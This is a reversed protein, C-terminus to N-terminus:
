KLREYYEVGTAGSSYVLTQKYANKGTFELQLTVPKGVLDYAYTSNTNSEKVRSNGLMEFTGYGFASAPKNSASDKYTNVWIFHGSQFVKFQTPHMETTAAGNKPTYVMRTQKWAGDLPSTINRSVNKYYETLLLKNAGQTFDIRQEYGNNTRTINVQFTDNHAGGSATHFVQEAIGDKKTKYTGIGYDALSDGPLAHAYIMYRDTFIKIQEIGSVSDTTGNNMVQKTMVYAGKMGQQSNSYFATMLCITLAIASLFKM